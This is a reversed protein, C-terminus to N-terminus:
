RKKQHRPCYYASRGVASVRELRRGCKPCKGDGHRHPLVYSRPLRATDVRARIATRLVRRMTRWLEDIRPERLDALKAKPHLGMQFLIEDSYENGIGAIVSQNMLAGKVSGARGTMLERFADKDLAPDLADIGLGKADVYEEVSEAFAISGLKRTDTFALHRGNHFDLRLRTFDPEGENGEYYQVGGTMGFHLVLWGADGGIEAFLHKGHRRTSELARAELRSRVTKASMGELMRRPDGLRVHEIRQHLSTADLYEKFVQVDPLEPM